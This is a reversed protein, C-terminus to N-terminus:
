STLRRLLAPLDRIDSYSADHRIATVPVDRIGDTFLVFPVAAREATEADVPSDGVYIGPDAGLMAFAQLLPAPDPKRVPLSDGAVVADFVGALGTAELVAALPGSPKNTCLGLPVANARLVELVEIVHPFVSVDHSQAIYHDMFRSMLRADDDGDLDTAAILRDLFVREGLGVFGGIRAESLPPLGEDALLANAAAAIGSLSDILTGDLDFVVPTQVIV